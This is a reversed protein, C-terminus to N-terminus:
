SGRALRENLQRWAAMSRALHDRADGGIGYCQLGVPGKYGVERLTRLLGLMDFSGEDLPVIWKGKGARLDAARDSGNISVAVLLPGASKLLPAINKEDDVKLFHCLNFMVGVNPRDVKRAVRVADDVKELWDSVHPYLALKVGHPQALDAMERLLAVAREDGATDSPKGGGVLIALMTDRGKLLPLIDKLRPDYPQKQGPAIDLRVYVQFLKLGAADLTQLREPVKDLWLHGAGDYGLDKLMEAQQPLDRKKADHTDMCLAFFPFARAPPDAGRVAAGAGGLLVCVALPLATALFPLHHRRM